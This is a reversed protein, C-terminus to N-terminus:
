AAHSSIEAKRLLSWHSYTMQHAHQGRTAAAIPLSIADAVVEIIVRHYASRSPRVIDYYQGLVGSSIIFIIEM